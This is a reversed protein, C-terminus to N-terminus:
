RKLFKKLYGSIDIGKNVKRKCKCEGEVFHSFTDGVTQMSTPLDSEEKYVAKYLCKKCTLCTPIHRYLAM